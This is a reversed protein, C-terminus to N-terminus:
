LYVIRIRIRIRTRIMGRHVVWRPYNSFYDNSRSRSGRGRPDDFGRAANEGGRGGRDGRTPGPHSEVGVVVLLLFFLIHISLTM